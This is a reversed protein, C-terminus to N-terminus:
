NDMGDDPCELPNGSAKPGKFWSIVANFLFPFTSIALIFSGITCIMNIDAFKPDYM